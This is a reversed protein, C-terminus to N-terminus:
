FLSLTRLKGTKEGTNEEKTKFLKRLTTLYTQYEDRPIYFDCEKRNGEYLQLMVNIIADVEEHTMEKEYATKIVKLLDSAKDTVYPRERVLQKIYWRIESLANIYERYPSPMFSSPFFVKVGYTQSVYDALISKEEENMESVIEPSVHLSIGMNRIVNNSKQLIEFLVNKGFTSYKKSKFCKSNLLPIWLPIPVKIKGHIEGKVLEEVIEEPLESLTEFVEHTITHYLITDEVDIYSLAYGGKKNKFVPSHQALTLFFEPYKKFFVYLTPLCYWFTKERINKFIFPLIKELIDKKINLTYNVLHQCSTVIKSKKNRKFNPIILPFVYNELFTEVVINDDPYKLPQRAGELSEIDEPIFILERHNHVIEKFFEPDNRLIIYLIIVKTIKGLSYTNAKLLEYLHKCDFQSSHVVCMGQDSYFFISTPFSFNDLFDHPDSFKYNRMYEIFDHPCKELLTGYINHLFHKPMVIKESIDVNCLYKQFNQFLDNALEEITKM